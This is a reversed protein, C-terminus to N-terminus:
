CCKGRMITDIRLYKQEELEYLKDIELILDDMIIRINADLDERFRIILVHTIQHGKIGQLVNKIFSMPMVKAWIAEYNTWIAIFGGFGDVVNTSQQITVQHNLESLKIKKM